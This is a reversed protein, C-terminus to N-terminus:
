EDSKTENKDEPKALTQRIEEIAAKVNITEPTSLEVQRPQERWGAQCKLWFCIASTNGNRILTMLQGEVFERTKERISNIKSELEPDEKRWKELTVRSIGARDCSTTILGMSDEMAEIFTKKKEEKEKKTYTRAM